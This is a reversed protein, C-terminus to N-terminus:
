ETSRTVNVIIGCRAYTSKGLCITLVHAPHPLIRRLPRARLLEAASCVDGQVRRRVRMSISQISSPRNVNTFNSNMAVRIDYGYSRFETASSVKAFRATPSPEIMKHELAMKGFGADPKVSMWAEQKAAANTNRFNERSASRRSLWHIAPTADSV